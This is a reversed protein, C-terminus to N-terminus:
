EFKLWTVICSTTLQTAIGDSECIDLISFFVQLWDLEIVHKLNMIHMRQLVEPKYRYHGAGLKEVSLRVLVVLLLEERAFTV